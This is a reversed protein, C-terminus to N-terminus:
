WDEEDEYDDEWDDEEDEPPYKYPLMKKVKNSEKQHREILLM